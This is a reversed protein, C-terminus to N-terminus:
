QEPDFPIPTPLSPDRLLQLALGRRPIAFCPQDGSVHGGMYTVMGFKTTRSCVTDLINPVPRPLGGLLVSKGCM